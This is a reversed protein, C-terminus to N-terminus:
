RVTDLRQLVLHRKLVVMVHVCVFWFFLSRHLGTEFLNAMAKSLTLRTESRFQYAYDFKAVTCRLRLTDNSVYPQLPDTLVSSKFFRPFGWKDSEQKFKRTAKVEKLVVGSPGLVALGYFCAPSSQTGLFHLYFGVFDKNAGVCRLHLKLQWEAGLLSFPQSLLSNKSVFSIRNIIWSYEASTQSVNLTEGSVAM